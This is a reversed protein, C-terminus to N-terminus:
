SSSVNLKRSYSYNMQKRPYVSGVEFKSGRMESVRKERQM